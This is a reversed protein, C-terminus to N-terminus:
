LFDKKTNNLPRKTIMGRGGLRGGQWNNKM